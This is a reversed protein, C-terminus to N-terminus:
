ALEAQIQADIQRIRGEMDAILSEEPLDGARAKAEIAAAAAADEEACMNALAGKISHATHFLTDTDGAEFPARLVPKDGGFQDVFMQMIQHIVATNGGLRENLQTLDIM